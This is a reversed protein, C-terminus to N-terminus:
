EAAPKEKKVKISTFRGKKRDLYAEVVLDGEDIQWWAITEEGNKYRTGKYLDGEHLKGDKGELILSLGAGVVTKVRAGRIADGKEKEKGGKRSVRPKGESSVELGSIAGTKTTPVAVVVDGKEIDRWRAPEGDRVVPVGEPLDFEREVGSADLVLLSRVRVEKVTAHFLMQSLPRQSLSEDARKGAPARRNEGEAAAASASLLFAALFPASRM